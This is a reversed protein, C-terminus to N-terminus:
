PMQSWGGAADQASAWAAEFVGPDSLGGGVFVADPGPLGALVEPAHGIVIDLRDPARARARQARAREARESKEEIGIARLSPDRLLWEIAISGAGLGIDWLLEGPRPALSSLTIARVERKSLQGDNEFLADDLGSALAITGRDGSASVEVALTNLPDIGDLDFTGADARRVRERPGGM